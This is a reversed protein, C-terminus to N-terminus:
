AVPYQLTSQEETFDSNKIVAKRFFGSPVVCLNSVKKGSFWDTKYIWGRLPRKKRPRLYGANRGIPQIKSCM